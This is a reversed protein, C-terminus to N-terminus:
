LYSIRKAGYGHPEASTDENHDFIFPHINEYRKRQQTFNMTNSMGLKLFKAHRQLIEKRFQHLSYSRDRIFDCVLISM